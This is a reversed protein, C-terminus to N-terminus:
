RSNSNEKEYIKKVWYILLIIISTTLAMSPITIYGFEKVFLKSCAGGEATCPLLSAGGLTTYTFYLAVLLGLLALPTAFTFAADTFSRSGKKYLALGFIIVLPFTFVRIWWCLVCPEYGIIESYFLSGVTASLATAFVLILANEGVFKIVKRRGSGGSVVALFIVGVLIHSALTAYPILESVLNSM